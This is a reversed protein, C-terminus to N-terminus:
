HLPTSHLPTSHLPTSDQRPRGSAHTPQPHTQTSLTSRTSVHAPSARRHVDVRCAHPTHTRGHACRGGDTQLVMGEDQLEKYDAADDGNGLQVVKIMNGSCAAARMLLPSVALETCGNPFLKTSYVENGGQGDEGASEAM